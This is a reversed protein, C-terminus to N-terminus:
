LGLNFGLTYSRSPPLMIDSTGGTFDPDLKNRNARWIIVNMNNIYGFFQLSKIVSAKKRTNVNYSIRIDQLRIHDGKLINVESKSYFEDRNFDGPFNMSPVTTHTEDGAKQWRLYYDSHTSWNAYLDNYRITPKRFYYALRYTINASLSIGKWTFSNMLFGSYQPIASGNFVQHNLSDNFINVYDKSIQGNLYGRPDGNNPDLGAWKYSSLGWALQGENPNIGYDLYQSAKFGGGSYKTVITKSYSLSFNTEWNLTGQLNVSNILLDLGNTKLSASNVAYSAIGTTVDFPIQSILDKPKKQYWEISGTIRSKILAYELGINVTRVEEWRLDPNPADGIIANRLNTLSLTSYGITPLGTRANDVNGMYGYSAKLKLYPLWNINFFSERTIDWSVGASWLPKWKNRTAVGFVNTGDRRASAYVTYKKLYSYSANALVSVFRNRTGESISSGQPITGSGIGAYFPFRTSYDLGTSYTLNTENYGYFKNGNSNSSNESIEGVIMASIDHKSKWTNQFSLQGRINHSQQQSNLINLIPGIPIPNRLAPTAQNFNTYLNITNRTAYSQLSQLNRNAGIQNIFQYKIDAKLWSTLKYSGGLSLRITKTRTVNNAYKIEDLPRYHWDLLKGGGTTDIFSQAYGFPIALSNGYDDALRAYPYLTTKGGGTGIPYNFGTARSNIQGINIGIEFESNKVPRFINVSNITFQESPKAGRVNPYSNNFGASLSYSFINNGGNINLYHQQSIPAKFIYKNYDNNIHYNRLATIQNTAETQTILGRRQKYLIEVVPSWLYFQPFALIDDYYGKSFLQQEVDIFDTSAMQPYYSLDPKDQITVNSSLTVRLPQNFRGKKTNIVIVGNGARVGWVSAAAADKLITVDLVDNPNLTTLDGTFPFNDVIVLPDFAPLAGNARNGLTSIGRIQIGANVSKKNFLVGPVTGDLRDLINMGARRAYAASDLKSSSGVFREKVINQYGTSVVTVEQAEAIKYSVVINIYEQTGVKIEKYETNVSSIILTANPNVEKLEFEGKENTTTGTKTGKITVSAAIVPEGKETVVKGRVTMLPSPTNTEPHYEVYIVKDTVQFRFPTNRFIVQLAETLDANKIDVSLPAIKTDWSKDFMFSYGTQQYIDMLLASPTANQRSITIKQAETSAALQLSIFLFLLSLKM